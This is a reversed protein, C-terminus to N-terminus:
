RTNSRGFRRQQLNQLGLATGIPLLVLGLLPALFGTYLASGLAAILESGASIAIDGQIWGRIFLFFLALIRAIAYGALAMAGLSLPNRRVILGRSNLMFHAAVLYGLACPGLIIVEGRGEILPVPFLLDMLIGLILASRHVMSPTGALAILAVLPFIFSPAIGSSGIELMRRLGLELGFLAWALLAFGLWIM